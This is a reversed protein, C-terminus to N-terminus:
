VETWIMIENKTLEIGVDPERTDACLRSEERRETGGWEFIFM